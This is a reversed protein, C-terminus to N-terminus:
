SRTALERKIARYRLAAWGISWLVFLELVSAFGGVVADRSVSILIVFLLELAVAVLCIVAYPGYQYAAEHIRGSPRSKTRWFAELVERKEQRSCSRYVDLKM